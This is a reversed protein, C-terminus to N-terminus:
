PERQAKRLMGEWGHLPDGRPLHEPYLSPKESMQGCACHGRAPRRCSAQPWQKREYLLENM